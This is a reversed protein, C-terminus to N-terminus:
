ALRLNLALALALAQAAPRESCRQMNYTQLAPMTRTIAHTICRGQLNLHQMHPMDARCIM